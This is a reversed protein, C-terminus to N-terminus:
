PKGSPETPPTADWTTVVVKEAANGGAGPERFLKFYQLQHGDPSFTVHATAAGSVGTTGLDPRLTLLEKGSDADWVCVSGPSGTRSPRELAIRRGDPSFAINRYNGGPMLGRDPPEIATLQKGTAADHIGILTGSAPSLIAVRKGDPSWALAAGTRRMEFDLTFISDGTAADWVAMKPPPLDAATKPSGPGPPGLPPLPHGLAALRKGDPSFSMLRYISNTGRFSRVERRTAVDFLRIVTDGKGGTQPSGIAVTSGDPSIALGSLIALETAPFESYFLEKGTTLDWVTLDGPQPVKPEPELGKFLGATSHRLLALRRGDGSMALSCSLAFENPRPTLPMSQKGAVDWVQIDPTVEPLPGLRGTVSAATAMRRGDASVVLQSRDRGPGLPLVVPNVPSTEWEKLTGDSELSWLRGTASFSYAVPPRKHGRLTRLPRGTSADWTTIITGNVAALQKGDPSFIPAPNGRGMGQDQSGPTTVTCLRKGAVPDFVILLVNGTATAGKVVLRSGDRSFSLDSSRGFEGWAFGESGLPLALSHLEKGAVTDWIHLTLTTATGGNPSPGTVLYALRRGDPSYTRLQNNVHAWSAVDKGTAADCVVSLFADGDRRRVVIRSGDPSFPSHVFGGCPIAVPPGGAELNWIHVASRASKPDGPTMVMGAVAVKRGDPSFVIQDLRGIKFREDKRDDHDLLPKGSDVDVVQFHTVMAVPTPRGTAPDIPRADRYLALRKGDASPHVSHVRGVGGLASIGERKPFKEPTMEHVLLRKRTAVDWVAATPGVSSGPQSMPSVVQAVRTGDQSFKWTSIGRGVDPLLHTGLEGRTQRNWFHWEFGRLEPPQRDLLYRVQTASGAEWFSPLTQMDWSYQEAQQQRQQQELRAYAAKAADRQEAAEKEAEVAAEHKKAVEGRQEAEADRAAVADSEAQKALVGFAISVGTAVLLVAAFAGAALLATRNKRYAKRLRYGLTPPCAEVADGALYRQVDKALGAATDYRVNRDKELCRMVIWDLEGRVMGALRGPETGRRASVATLTAGLSTLRTSPRPPEEERIIRRIEDFAAKRFRDGDFPTTGTLLEYLLVGLSYVDTRTDVDVGSMEAQEPSMYLPTGVMQAFRTYVTKETLSQGVAKAVGFDIVKSVPVGDITTVLVNSPKLDRHIVGKQHAHQVAQCVQVFLGLRDRPSLNGADCYETIPVGRVLEMVFYPRGSDTTGADLVKAINPHDMLALAQREAEFRAVVQKSDMGPKIVKLAVKRRVPSTQEAVFVLGMGGEGIQERLTYPGIVTGEGETVPDDHAATEGAPAAPSRMFSGADGLAKLLSEVEARVAPRGACARDLFAAREASSAIEAARGFVSQVDPTPNTM